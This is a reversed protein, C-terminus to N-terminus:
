DEHGGKVPRCAGDAAGGGDDLSDVSQPEPQPDPEVGALDLQNGVIVDATHRDVDRGADPSAGLGVLDQNRRRDLVEDRAGPDLELPAAAVGELPHRSVPAAVRDGAVSVYRSQNAVPVASRLGSRTRITMM